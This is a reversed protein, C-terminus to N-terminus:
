VMTKATNVNPDDRMVNQREKAVRIAHKHRAFLNEDKSPAILMMITAVQPRLDM